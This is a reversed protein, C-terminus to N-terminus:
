HIARFVKIGDDTVLFCEVDIKTKSCHEKWMEQEM